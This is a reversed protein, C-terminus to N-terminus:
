GCLNRSHQLVHDYPYMETICPYILHPEVRLEVRACLRKGGLLSQPDGLIQTLCGELKLSKLLRALGSRGGQQIGFSNPFTYGDHDSDLVRFACHLVRHGDGRINRAWLVELAYWGPELIAKM